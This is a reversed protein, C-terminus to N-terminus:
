YEIRGVIVLDRKVMTDLMKSIMQCEELTLGSATYISWSDNVNYKYYIVINHKM